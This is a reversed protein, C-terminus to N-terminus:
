TLWLSGIDPGVRQPPIASMRHRGQLRFGLSGPHQTSRGFLEWTGAIGLIGGSAEDPGSKGEADVLGADARQYLTTYFIGFGLGHDDFLQDKFETWPLMMRDLGPTRLLTDKRKAEKELRNTLDDPNRTIDTPDVFWPEAYSGDQEVLEGLQQALAPTALKITMVLALFLRM